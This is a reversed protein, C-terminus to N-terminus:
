SSLPPPDKCEYKKKLFRTKLFIIAWQQSLDGIERIKTFRIM